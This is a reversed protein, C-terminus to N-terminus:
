SQLVHHLNVAGLRSALSDVVTDETSLTYVPHDPHDLMKVFERVFKVVQDTSCLPAHFMSFHNSIVTNSLWSKYAM